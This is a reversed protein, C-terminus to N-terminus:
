AVDEAQVPGGTSNDGHRLLERDVPFQVKGHVFPELSPGPKQFQDLGVDGVFMGQPHRMELHDQVLWAPGVVPENPELVVGLDTPAGQVLRKVGGLEVVIEPLLKLALM